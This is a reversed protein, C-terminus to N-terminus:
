GGDSRAKIKKYIVPILSLVALALLPGFIEPKFVVNIDPTGGQDFVAGLGNGISCFVATGPIIGLFTGIVFTQVNSAALSGHSGSFSSFM